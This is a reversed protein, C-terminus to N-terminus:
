VSGAVVVLGFVFGLVCVSAIWEFVFIKECVCVLCVRRFSSFFM